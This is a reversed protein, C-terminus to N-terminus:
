SIPEAAREISQKVPRVPSPQETPQPGDEGAGGVERLLWDRTLESLLQLAAAAEVIARWRSVGRLKMWIGVTGDARWAREFDGGLREREAGTLLQEWLMLGSLRLCVRGRAEKMARQLRLPLEACEDSVDAQRGASGECGMTTRPMREKASNTM